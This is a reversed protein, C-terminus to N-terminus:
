VGYCMDPRRNCLYRLYGVIKKFLTMDVVEEISKEIKANVKIPTVTPNCSGMNFRRLVESM